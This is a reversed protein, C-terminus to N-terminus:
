FTASIGVAVTRTAPYSGYDVGQSLASNGFCNVDPNWGSYGTITFLNTASIHAKLSKFVNKKTPIDYSLSLRRLRLFDGKEVYRDTLKTRGEAILKGMNAIKHGAAGDFALDVTFAGTKVKTGLGGYVKPLTSGLNVKDADSIKGDNNLDVITGSPNTTYGFLSSISGGLPNANVFINKGINRGFMDEQEIATIRNINYAINADMSWRVNSRKILDASLEFEFGTNVLSANRHSLIKGERAWTTYSGSVKGFNYIDFSEDTLRDYYKVGFEVRDAFGIQMGLTWEKTHARNLGDYYVETGPAVEPVARVYNVLMEYPVYNEYGAKGWGGNLRLTSVALSTPFAMKRIDMYATVSPYSIPKSGSYKTSFDGRYIATAGILSEFDYDIQACVGAFNYNRRFKYPVARSGMASLGRARLYPLEFNTGNMVGFRNLNGLVDGSVNIHVRHKAAIFRQFDLEAKANYNFLTSFMISAAGRNATGFSTGEGYWIRRTNSQFDEGLTAKFYFGPMFNLKMYVSSVARYDEVDDDYDKQWGELSDGTFRNPYRSLIMTSPKGLYATGATNHQAGATIISNLGFWIFPNAKTEFNVNMGGFLNGTGKAIGYANRLFGAINYSTGDDAGYVAVSHNHAFGPRLADGYRNAFDTMLNSNWRIGLKRDKPAKSKIIIVGNAGQSGYIATAAADKLVTISEIDEPNLFAMGDLASSYSLESYDAIDDGKTTKGGKQWFANLNQSLGNTLIVDNVIWLPQSDGHLSNLGRINVNVAGNISGDIESVRVGAVQGQILKAATKAVASEFGLSDKIVDQACLGICAMCM